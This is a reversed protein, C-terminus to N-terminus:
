AAAAVQALLRAILPGAVEEGRMGARWAAPIGNTGWRAGALGGAIAATTDTDRGYAIARRITAEYTDSGAFADWASWFSDVVWGDGSRETWAEMTELAALGARHGGLHAVLAARGRALADAPEDGALLREVIAVYWACAVECMLHGHTVRSARRAWLLRDEGPPLVVLAVPLIRMLSGNGQSRETIAGAEEAGVGERLRVIADGTTYGIDFYGEGDPTYAGGDTWALFARGHRELDLPAPDTGSEPLLADLTALMLAGDDSWTGAPKGWTGTAGFTVSEADYPGGFEYPVGTADGVLLGRIAGEIRDAHTLETKTTDTM